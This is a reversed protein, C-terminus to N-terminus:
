YGEKRAEEVLDRESEKKGRKKLWIVRMKRRYGRKM